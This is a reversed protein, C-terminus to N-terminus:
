IQDIIIEEAANSKLNNKIENRQYRLDKLYNQNLILILQRYM